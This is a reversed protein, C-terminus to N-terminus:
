KLYYKLGHKMVVAECSVSPYNRNTTGTSISKPFLLILFLILFSVLM